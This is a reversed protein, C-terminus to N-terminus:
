LPMDYISFITVLMSIVIFGVILAMVLIIAPELMGLLRKLTRRSEMEYRNAVHLLTEELRGTEEGVAVMHSVLPPFVGNERFPGALGKGRSVGDEVSALSRSMVENGIVDRSIRIAQLIPVGSSLMTGLTRCFRAVSIRTHLEKLVPIKLKYSDLLVRGEETKAYARLLGFLLVGIIIGIWWFRSFISSISMLLQTSAPLSQGLDLFISAFKPVVYIMMVAVAMGGVLTLFFPYILATRVEEKFAISTELFGALKNVISELVGGVEGVRIMNVYLNTFVEHKSLAQSLAQGGQIDQLVTSVLDRVAKKESIQSLIMLARDVPIGAELLGGLQQTFILVDAQSIKEFYLFKGADLGLFSKGEKKTELSIPILGQSRLQEKVEFEGPADLTGRVKQGSSNVARYDFVPM